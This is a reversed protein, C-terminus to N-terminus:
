DSCRARRCMGSRPARRLRAPCARGLGRTMRAAGCSRLCREATRLRDIHAAKAHAARRRVAVALEVADEGHNMHEARRQRPQPPQDGRAAVGVGADLGLLALVHLGFAHAGVPGKGGAAADVLGVQQQALNDVRGLGAVHQDGVLVDARPLHAEHRLPDRAFVQGAAAAGLKAAFLDALRM